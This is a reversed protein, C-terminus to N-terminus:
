KAQSGRLRRLKDLGTEQKAQKLKKNRRELDLIVTKGSMNLIKKSEEDVLGSRVVKASARAAIQVSKPTGKKRAM